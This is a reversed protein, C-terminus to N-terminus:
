DKSTQGTGLLLFHHLTSVRACLFVPPHPCFVHLGLKAWFYLVHIKLIHTEYNKIDSNKKQNSRWSSANFEEKNVYLMHILGKFGSNCGM